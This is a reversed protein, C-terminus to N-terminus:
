DRWGHSNCSINLPLRFWTQQKMINNAKTDRIEQNTKIDGNQSINKNISHDNM